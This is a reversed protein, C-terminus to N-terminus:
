HEASYYRYDGAPRGQMDLLLALLFKIVISCPSPNAAELEAVRSVGCILMSATGWM